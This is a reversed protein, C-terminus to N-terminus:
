WDATEQVVDLEYESEEAEKGAKGERKPWKARGFQVLQERGGRIQPVHIEVDYAGEEPERKQDGKGKRTGEM